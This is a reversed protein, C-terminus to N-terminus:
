RSVYDRLICTGLSQNTATFIRGGNVRAVQEAFTATRVDAGLIVLNIVINERTCRIVEAMTANLVEPTPPSAFADEGGTTALTPEGDTIVVIQRTGARDRRLMRRGLELAAQLHTGQEFEDWRMEPIDDVSVPEAMSSFALLELRDRPYSQRILEHMALSVTKAATWGGSQGMSRSRDIALIMTVATAATREVVAFDEPRMPIRGSMDIGSRRVANSLTAILNLDLPRGPEWVVTEEAPDGANGRNTSQHEGAVPSAANRFLGKLLDRGIARVVEPPLHLQRGPATGSTADRIVRQWDRLWGDMQEHLAVLNEDSLQMVSGIGELAALDTEVRDLADLTVLDHGVHEPAVSRWAGTAREASSSVGGHFLMRRVRDAAASRASRMAGQAEGPTGGGRRSGTDGAGSRERLEEVLADRASRAHDDAYERDLADALREIPSADDGSVDSAARREMGALRDLHPVLGELYADHEVQRRLRDREHRLEQLHEQLGEIHDGNEDQFGWRFARELALRADGTDLLDSAYAALAQSLTPRHSTGGTGSRRAYRHSGPSGPIAVPM